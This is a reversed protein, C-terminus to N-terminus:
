EEDQAIWLTMLVQARYDPGVPMRTLTLLIGARQFRAIACGLTCAVFCGFDQSLFPDGILGQIPLASVQRVREPRM